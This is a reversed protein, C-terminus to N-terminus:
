LNILSCQYNPKKETNGESQFRFNQKVYQTEPRRTWSIIFSITVRHTIHQLMFFPCFCVFNLFEFFDLPPHFFSQTLHRFVWYIVSFSRFGRCNEAFIRLFLAFVRSMPIECIALLYWKVRLVSKLKVRSLVLSLFYRTFSLVCSGKVM